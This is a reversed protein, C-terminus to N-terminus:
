SKPPGGSGKSSTRPFKASSSRSTRVASRKSMRTLGHAAQILLFRLAGLTMKSGFHNRNDALLITRKMGGHRQWDTKVTDDNRNPSSM